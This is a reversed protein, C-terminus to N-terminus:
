QFFLTSLKGSPSIQIAWSTVGNEFTARFVDSGAQPGVFELKRLQGLARLRATIMPMQQEVAIRLMPEMDAYDPAGSALYGIASRLRPESGANVQADAVQYGGPGDAAHGPLAGLGLAVAMALKTVASRGGEHM